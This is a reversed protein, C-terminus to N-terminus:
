TVTKTFYVRAYGNDMARHTERYGRRPYYVLNETMVENTYLRLEPVGLRRAEVEALDLLRTGLGAGQVEPAVAITDILLHDTALELVLVGVLHDARHAVWTHGAAVVAAYDARMPAPERDMRALYPSYAVQVLNTIAAVDGPLADRVVLDTM